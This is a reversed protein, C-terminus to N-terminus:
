IYIVYIGCRHLTQPQFMMSHGTPGRLLLSGSADLRELNEERHHHHHPPPPPNLMSDFSACWPGLGRAALLQPHQDGLQQSSQSGLSDALCMTGLVTLWVALSYWIYWTWSNM